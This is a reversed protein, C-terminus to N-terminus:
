ALVLGPNKDLPPRLEFQCRLCSLVVYGGSVVTSKGDKRVELRGDALLVGVINHHECRCRIVTDTQNM